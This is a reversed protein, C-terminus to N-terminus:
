AFFPDLKIELEFAREGFGLKRGQAFENPTAALALRELMQEARDFEGVEGERRVFAGEDRTGFGLLQDFIEAVEGPRFIRAHEIDSGAAADDREREGRAKGVRLQVGDIERRFRERERAFVRVPEANRVSDMEHLTMQEFRDCAHEIQDHGIKGVDGRACGRLERGLHQM